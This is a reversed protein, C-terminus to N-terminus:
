SDHWGVWHSDSVMGLLRVSALAAGEVTTVAVGTATQAWASWGFLHWLLLRV